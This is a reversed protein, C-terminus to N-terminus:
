SVNTATGDLGTGSHEKANGDLKYWAVLAM